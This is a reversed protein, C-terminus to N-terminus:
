SHCRLYICKIVSNCMYSLNIPYCSSCTVVISMTIAAYFHFGGSVAKLGEGTAFSNEFHVDDYDKFIKALKLRVKGEQMLLRAVFDSM